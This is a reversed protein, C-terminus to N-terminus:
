LSRQDHNRARLVDSAFYFCRREWGLTASLVRPIHGAIDDIRAVYIFKDLMNRPQKPIIPDSEQHIVTKQYRCLVWISPVTAALLGAQRGLSGNHPILPFQGPPGSRRSGTESFATKKGGSNHANLRPRHGACHAFWRTPYLLFLVM